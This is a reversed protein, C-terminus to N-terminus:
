SGNSFRAFSAAFKVTYLYIKNLLVLIYGYPKVTYLYIKNLLVLELSPDLCLSVYCAQSHVFINQQAFGAGIDGVDIICQKSIWSGNFIICSICGLGQISSGLKPSFSSLSSVSYLSSICGMGQISSGRGYADIAAWTASM